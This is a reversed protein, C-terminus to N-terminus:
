TAVAREKLSHTPDDDRVLVNKNKRNFFERTVMGGIGKENKM